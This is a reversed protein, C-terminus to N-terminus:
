LNLEKAVAMIAKELKNELESQPENSTDGFITGVFALPCKGSAVTLIIAYTVTKQDDKSVSNVSIGVRPVRKKDMVYFNSGRLYTEIRHGFNEAEAGTADIELDVPIKSAAVARDTNVIEFLAFLFLFIAIGQVFPSMRVCRM